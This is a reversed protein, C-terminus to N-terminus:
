ARLAEPGEKPAPNGVADVVGPGGLRDAGNRMQNQITAVTWIMMPTLGGRVGNGGQSPPEFTTRDRRHAVRVASEPRERGLHLSATTNSHTYPQAIHWTCTTPHLGLSNEVFRVM